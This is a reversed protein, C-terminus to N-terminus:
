RAGEIPSAAIGESVGRSWGEDANLALIIVGADAEAPDTEVYAL